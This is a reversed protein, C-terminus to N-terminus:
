EPVRQPEQPLLVVTVTRLSCHKSSQPLLMKEM